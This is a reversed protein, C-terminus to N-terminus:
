ASLNATKEVAFRRAFREASQAFHHKGANLNEIRCDELMHALMSRLAFEAGRLMDVRAHQEGAFPKETKGKVTKPLIEASRLADM